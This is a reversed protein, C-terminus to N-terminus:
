ASRIPASCGCKRLEAIFLKSCPYFSVMGSRPCVTQKTPFSRQPREGEALLAVYRSLGWEPITESELLGNWLPPLRFAQNLGNWKPLLPIRHDFVM